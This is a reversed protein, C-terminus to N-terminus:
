FRLNRCYVTATQLTRRYGPPYTGPNAAPSIVQDGVQYIRTDADGRIPEPTRALLWIRVAGILPAGGGPPPTVLMPGFFAAGTEANRDLMGM